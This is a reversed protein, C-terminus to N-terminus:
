SKLELGSDKLEGQLGWVRALLRPAHSALYAYAMFKLMRGAVIVLALQGMPANSLSALILAPQQVIPSAMVAFVVLLGYSDFFQQTVLWPGTEDLGPYFQLVLPLGHMKVLAVLILGGITSGIAVSLGLLIWRRTTLMTSSILIGDTPIVLVLNDLAALVGILPAYWIRNVFRQLWLVSARIKEHFRAIM